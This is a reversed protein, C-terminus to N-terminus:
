EERDGRGEGDGREEREKKEVGGEGGQLGLQREGVHGEEGPGM